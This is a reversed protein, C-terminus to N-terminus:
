HSPELLIIKKWITLDFSRAPQERSVPAVAIGEVHWNSTLLVALSSANLVYLQMFSAKTSEDLQNSLSSQHVLQCM